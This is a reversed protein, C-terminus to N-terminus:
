EQTWAIRSKKEYWHEQIQKFMETKLHKRTIGQFFSSHQTLKTNFFGNNTGQQEVYKNRHSAALVKNQSHTKYELLKRENTRLTLLSENMELIQNTFFVRQKTSVRVM